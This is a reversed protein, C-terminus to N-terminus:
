SCNLDEHHLIWYPIIKSFKSMVKLLDDFKGDDKEYKYTGVFDAM